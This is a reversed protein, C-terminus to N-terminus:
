SELVLPPVAGVGVDAYLFNLLSEIFDRLRKRLLFFLSLTSTSFGAAEPALGECSELFDDGDGSVWVPQPVLVGALLRVTVRLECELFECM